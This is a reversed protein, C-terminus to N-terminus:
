VLRALRNGAVLGLAGGFLSTFAMPGLGTPGAVALALAIGGVLGAIGGGLEILVRAVGRRTLVADAPDGSLGNSRWARVSLITGAVAMFAVGIAALWIGPGIEGTGNARRWAAVHTNASGLASIWILVATDGLVALAAQITRTRSTAAGENVAVWAAVGALIPLIAGDATTMPSFSIPGSALRGDAWSIFSGIFAAMCGVVLAIRLPQGAIWSAAKGEDPAWRFSESM